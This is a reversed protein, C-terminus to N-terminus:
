ITTKPIVKVTQANVLDLFILIALQEKERLTEFAADEFVAKARSEILPLSVFDTMTTIYEKWESKKELQTMTQHIPDQLVASLFALLGKDDKIVQEVYRRCHVENGWNKWAYLIPLLKPHEPLRGIQAWYAIKSVTLSQLNNLQETTLDRHEIPLYTDDTEIHEQAQLTLEHIIVYLSKSSKNIAFQLIGAREETTPCRHLLQHCIRHIRTMTDCSLLTAEGEPFLDASDFFAGIINKIHPTSVSELAVGDLADLFQTVREDQNLRLLAQTFAEEDSTLALLTKIESEPIHGMPISLRFYIDFVDPCSIRRNKRALTESHYFSEDPHYIMHLRPFLHMLLTLLLSPSIVDSRQLIEDCRAKDKKLKEDDFVYVNDLLDTFLDKNDRIGYFVQPAFVEIATLAVFDVPNVVDKVRTFSFSLTNTFRTIDRCTSFFYKISSYYIDAWATKNWAEEAVLTVIRQLRDFLLNELDQTSIPPVEFPLQVLKELYENGEDAHIQNIAHLMQTKDYSLLYITNNYDGMSKVIQFIQNIEAPELRSINDIIIIIKHKQNKLLQNLENKVQIPDLGSEWAYAGQKRSFTKKLQTLLRPKIQLLKPVPQHTFFSVYLELLYIIDAANELHTAQRLESSLRRFFGYVLQGQGSYSWPSFNLIIPKEDDFMNSAALRLEELVLNILSTKGSGWGGHLGLSLSEPTKHDLMCRALYKAFQSRGLRDQSSSIIPRDADFM